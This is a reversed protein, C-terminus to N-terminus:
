LELEVDSVVQSVCLQILEEGFDSLKGSRVDKVVGKKKVCQCQHCIGMGCGYSVNINQNQVQTLLTQQNDAVFSNGNHSVQFQQKDSDNALMPLISFHESTLSVQAQNAYEAVPQYFEAPGCVMFDTDTFRSLHECVDGDNQRTLLELTFSQDEAAIGNLEDVLLHEGAKAYYLLHVPHTLQSKAQQLMAIFPTIGSGAAFMTVPKESSLLFEGKPASINLWDGAKLESLFPTFLGGQNTKIVLRIVQQEIAKKSSSAITFVRTKLSGNVEMTLEIHQGAQHVPWDSGPQLALSLTDAGINSVTLVRARYYGSRWAPKFLQM